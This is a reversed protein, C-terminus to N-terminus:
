VSLSAGNKLCAAAEITDLHRNAVLLWVSLFICFLFHCVVFCVM